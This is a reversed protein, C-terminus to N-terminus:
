ICRFAISLRKGGRRPPTLALTQVLAGKSYTTLQGLGGRLPPLFASRVGNCGEPPDGESAFGKFPAFAVYLLPANSDM